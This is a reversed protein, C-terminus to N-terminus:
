SEPRKQRPLKMKAEYNLWILKMCKEAVQLNQIEALVSSSTKCM